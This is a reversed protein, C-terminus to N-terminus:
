IRREHEDEPGVREAGKAFGEVCEARVQVGPLVETGACAEVGSVRTATSHLRVSDALLEIGGHAAAAAIMAASQRAAARSARADDCDGM